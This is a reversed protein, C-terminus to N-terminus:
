IRAPLIWQGRHFYSSPNESIGDAPIGLISAEISDGGGEPVRLFITSSTPAARMRRQRRRATGYAWNRVSQSAITATNQTTVTSVSRDFTRGHIVTPVM